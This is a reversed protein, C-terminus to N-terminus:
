NISYEISELWRTWEGIRRAAKIVIVVNAIIDFPADSLRMLPIPSMAGIKAAVTEEAAAAPVSGQREYEEM